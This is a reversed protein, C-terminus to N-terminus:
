YGGERLFRIVEPLDALAALPEGDLRSISWQRDIPAGAYHDGAYSIPYQQWGKHTPTYGSRDVFV